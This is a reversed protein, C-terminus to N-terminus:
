INKFKILGNPGPKDIVHLYDSSTKKLISDLNLGIKKKSEGGQIFHKINEKNELTDKM